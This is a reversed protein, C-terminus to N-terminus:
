PVVPEVLPSAVDDVYVKLIQFQSHLVEGTVFAHNTLLLSGQGDFALNAPSDYPSIVSLPRNVLRTFESGDPDLVSIGSSGPLALAVYLRGSAGFAIGDPGELHAYHHFVKLDSAKPKAVLPLTYVYGQGFADNTVTFFLRTREPNLRIGNVGVYAGGLKAHQFWIQPAGGGPPIRWITAQLSDTVYLNGAEDFALDNSLPPANVLTPSCPAKGLTLACPTLDPLPPAYPEQQPNMSAPDFRYPGLQTNLVYLKGSGDFAICSNAHEALLNEGQTAYTDLLAGTNIDFALVRSPQGNATTGFKAPGSVYVRDGRVAIGEPTGPPTPVTALVTVEGYAPAAQAPAGGAMVAVYALMSGFWRASYQQM